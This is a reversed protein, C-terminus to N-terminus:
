ACTGQTQRSLLLVVKGAALQQGALCLCSGPGERDSTSSWGPGNGQAPSHASTYVAVRYQEQQQQEQEERLQRYLDDLSAAPLLLRSAECPQQAAAAAAAAKSGLWANCPFLWTEGTATEAVEVDQCHWAPAQM